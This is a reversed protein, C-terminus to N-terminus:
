EDRWRRLVVWLKVGAPVIAQLRAPLEGHAIEGEYYTGDLYRRFARVGMHLRDATDLLELANDLSGNSARRAMNYHTWSLERTRVNPPYFRAVNRWESVRPTDVDWAHALDSLTPADPDNPRGVKVEFEVCLDGLAYANTDRAQILEVGAAVFDEFDTLAGRGEVPPTDQLWDPLDERNM